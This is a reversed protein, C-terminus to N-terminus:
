RSSALRQQSGHNVRVHMVRHGDVCVCVCVRVQALRDSFGYDASYLVAVSHKAASIAKSWRDYRGVMEEVNFRLLPGHGNAIITYPLDKCKRLATTVSKANPLM